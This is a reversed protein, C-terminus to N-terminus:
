VQSFRAIRSCPELCTLESIISNSGVYCLPSVHVFDKVINDHDVMSGMNIIVHDGIVSNAQIVANQLIVSGKGIKVSKAVQASPHIFSQFRHKIFQLLQKRVNNNGVGLIIPLEPYINPNYTGLYIVNRTSEIPQDDFVGVIFEANFTLAEALVKGHGGFGYILSSVKNM